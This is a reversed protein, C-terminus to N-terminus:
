LAQDPDEHKMLTDLNATNMKMSMGDGGNRVMIIEAMISVALEEPTIAGINLGIPAYVGRLREPPVKEKM